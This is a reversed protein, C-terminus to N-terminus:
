AAGASSPNVGDARGSAGPPPHRLGRVGARLAPFLPLLLLGYPGLGALAAAGSPLWHHLLVAACYLLPTLLSAVLRAPRRLAAGAAVLGGVM